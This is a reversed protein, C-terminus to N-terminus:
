ALGLEARLKRTLKAAVLAHSQTIYAVLQDDPLADPAVRVWKARALYPSPTAVGQEILLEFAMESAKFSYNPTPNNVSGSGAFIKAGVCYCRDEGWKIDFTAGPLAM